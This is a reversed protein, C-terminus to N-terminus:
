FRGSAGGGGFSGGRGRVSSFFSRSKHQSKATTEKRSDFVVTTTTSGKVEFFSTYFKKSLAIIISFFGFFCLFISLNIPNFLKKGLILLAVGSWFFFWNFIRVFPSYGFFGNQRRKEEPLKLQEEYRERDVLFGIMLSIILFYCILTVTDNPNHNKSHNIYEGRTVKVIADVGRLAGEDFKKQAFFPSIEHDVIHGSLTDTLVHELGKGVELRIQREKMAVLLMIGNNHQSTGIKNFQALNYSYSEIPQNGISNLIVVFLQTSDTKEFNELKKILIEKTQASLVNTPDTVYNNILFNTSAACFSFILLFLYKIKKM